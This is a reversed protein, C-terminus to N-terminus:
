TGSRRLPADSRHMPYTPLDIGAARLRRLISRRLESAVVAKPNIDSTYAWLEYGLGMESFSTLLARPPPVRLVGPHERACEELVRIVTDDDADMAVTLAIDVRGGRDKFTWNVVTGSVLESNPVFVSAQQFTKIETARLSIRHVLGEHGGVVVWDGPKVPREALMVLGSIINNAIHQLGFGIGVALGGVVLVLDSLDIGLTTIAFLVALTLGLYGVATRLASQAGHDLRTNPLVREALLRQTVRTTALVALFVVFAAIVDFVSIQLNGVEVGALLRYAWVTIGAADIGWLALLAYFGLGALGIDFLAMTWFHVLRATRRTLPRRRYLLLLPRLWRRLLRELLHSVLAHTLWAGSFVVASGLLGIFLWDAYTMYGVLLLAPNVWVLLLASGLLLKGALRARARAQHRLAQPNRRKTRVAARAPPSGALRGVLATFAIAIGLRVLFQASQLLDRSITFHEGASYLLVSLGALLALGALQALTPGARRETPAALSTAPTRAGLLEGGLDFVYLAAGIGSLMVILLDHGVASSGPFSRSLAAAGVGLALPVASRLAVHLGIRSARSPRRRATASRGGPRLRRISFVLMLRAFLVVLLAVASARWLNGNAREPTGNPGSRAGSFLTRTGTAAVRQLETLAGSWVGADWLPARRQLLQSAVSRTARASITELLQQAKVSLVNAKKADGQYPDMKSNLERREKAVEPAEPPQGKAPPPGLAKLQEQYHAIRQQAQDRVALAKTMAQQVRSRLRDLQQQALWPASLEYEAISLQRSLHELEHQLDDAGPAAPAPIAVVLAVLVVLLARLYRPM